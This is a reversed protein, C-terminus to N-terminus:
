DRLIGSCAAAISYKSKLESRPATTPVNVDPEESQFITSSEGLVTSYWDTLPEEPGSGAVDAGHRAEVDCVGEM